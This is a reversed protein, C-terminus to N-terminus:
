VQVSGRLFPFALEELTEKGNSHFAITQRRGEARLDSTCINKCLYTWRPHAPAVLYPLPPPPVPTISVPCSFRLLSCSSKGCAPCGRQDDTLRMLDM